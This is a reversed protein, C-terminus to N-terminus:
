VLYRKGLVFDIVQSFKERLAAAVPPKVFYSVDRGHKALERVTSSSVFSNEPRTPFFVTDINPSIHGNTHALGLEYEFDTVARLGRVIVKAGVKECFDVLLGEFSAPVVNPLPACVLSLMLLRQELSFLASKSPNTGIAVYVKDFVASAREIIDLHGNTIPDFSGAYVAITM